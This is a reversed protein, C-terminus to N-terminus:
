LIPRCFWHLCRGRHTQNKAILGRESLDELAHGFQDFSPRMNPDIAWGLLLMEKVVAPWNCHLRPRRRHELVDRIFDQTKMSLFPIELALKEWVLLAFSYVDSAKGIPKGYAAEPSMYRATGGVISFNYKDIGVKCDDRLEAALGFDFLKIDGHKDFGVNETKLDRLIINNSHLFRMAGAIHILIMIRDNWLNLSYSYRPLYRLKAADARHENWTEFKERM